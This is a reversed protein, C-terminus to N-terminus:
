EISEYFKVVLPDVKVSTETYDCIQLGEPTRARSIATYSQGAAFCRALSVRVSNLTAGQTGHITAAFGLTLPVQIYAVKTWRGIKTEFAHPTVCLINADPDDIKGGLRPFRCTPYEGDMSMVRGAAGNFLGAAVNANHVLVVFAGEKLTLVNDARANEIMTKKVSEITREDPLHADGPADPNVIHMTSYTWSKPKGKLRRLFAENTMKVTERHPYIRTSPASDQDDPCIKSRLFEHDAPVMAGVRIRGLIELFGLDTQRHITKLVVTEGVAKKWLDTEFVYNCKLEETEPDFDPNNRLVKPATSGHRDNFRVQDKGKFCLLQFFDGCLILQIGGFPETRRERANRAVGDILYFYNPSLMSVEDIVLIRTQKFFDRARQWRSRDWIEQEIESRRTKDLIGLCCASHLTQCELLGAATGTTATLEVTKSGLMKRLLKICMSKGCGAAGTLFINKGAAALELFRTQDPDLAAMEEASPESGDEETRTKRRKAEM